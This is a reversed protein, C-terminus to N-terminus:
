INKILFIDYYEFEDHKLYEDDSMNEDYRADYSLMDKGISNSCITIKYLGSELPIALDDDESNAPASIILRGSPINILSEFKREYVLHQGENVYVRVRHSNLDSVTSVYICHETKLYGYSETEENRWDLRVNSYHDYASDFIYFQYHDAFIKIAYM